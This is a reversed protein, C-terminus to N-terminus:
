IFSYNCFVLFRYSLNSKSVGLRQHHSLSSALPYPPPPPLPSKGKTKILNLSTTLRVNPITIDKPFM